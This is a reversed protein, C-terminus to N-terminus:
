SSRKQELIRAAHESTEKVLTGMKPHSPELDVPWAYDRLRGTVTPGISGVMMRRCAQRFEEVKNEQKLLEMVHDIQAANTILMVDVSGRIVEAILRRLPATDVPFGWRYIPVATVHAGRQTLAELLDPNSAGYEQVAVRLGNVPRYADLATLLDHWTNPEPVTLTPTLGLAKLAATPKPGRAVLVIHNLATIMAERGHKPELLDILSKTGVGTLLILIDVRGNCLDTGFQLAASNDEIPIERLAPAMVPKGGYRSILGAMETAMRSEFAAVTLGEFSPKTM